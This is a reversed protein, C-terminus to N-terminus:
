RHLVSWLSGVRTQKLNLAKCVSNLVTEPDDLSFVGTIHLNKLKSDSLFIRGNRYKELETILESLPQDNIILRRQQWAIEQNLDVTKPSSLANHQQIHIQQGTQVTVKDMQNGKLNVAVAHEQVTVKINNKESRYIQFVTGMARVSLDDVIVDFPRLTDKAVSFRALGHHLTIQRVSENFDVSIASNTNLLVQSGDSLQIKRLEGTQTHYDSVWGDLLHMQQPLFLNVVILWTATIAIAPALWNFFAPPNHPKTPHFAKVEPNAEVEPKVALTMQEFLIEAESFAESNAHDQALWDAFDCLEEDNMDDARLRVLWDIAQQKQQTVTQNNAPQSM